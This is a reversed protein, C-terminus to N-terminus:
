HYYYFRIVTFDKVESRTIKLVCNTYKDLVYTTAPYKEKLSNATELVFVSFLCNQGIVWVVNFISLPVRYKKTSKRTKLFKTM